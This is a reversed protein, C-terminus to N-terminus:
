AIHRIGCVLPSAAQRALHAEVGAGALDAFAIIASPLGHREAQRELWETEAEADAADTGAQVHVAAVLNWSALDRRYDEPLYDSAIPAVNGNPGDDSFPPTLWPSRLARLDWLHMHADVFPADTLHMSRDGAAGAGCNGARALCNWRGSWGRHVCRLPPCTLPCRLIRSRRPARSPM